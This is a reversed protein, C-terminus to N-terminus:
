PVPPALVPGSSEGIGGVSARQTGTTLDWTTLTTVLAGTTSFQRTIFYGEVGDPSIAFAQFPHDPRLVGLQQGTDSALTVVSKFFQAHSDGDDTAVFLRTGDHSVQLTQQSLYMASSYAAVVRPMTRAVRRANTDWVTVDGARDLAYLWRGDASQVVAQNTLAPNERVTPPKTTLDILWSGSYLTRSDDAIVLPAVRCAPLPITNPLLQNAGVDFIYIWCTDHGAQGPQSTIRRGYLYIRRGDRTPAIIPPGWIKYAMLELGSVGAIRRGTALEFVDLRADTEGATMPYHTVYLRSGDPSFVPLAGWGVPLEGVITAARPDVVRITRYYDVVYVLPQGTPLAPFATPLPPAPTVTPWRPDHTATPAIPPSAPTGAVAAAGTSLPIARREPSAPRGCTALVLVALLVMSGRRWM